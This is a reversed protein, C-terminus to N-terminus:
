LVILIISEATLHSKVIGNHVEIFNSLKEYNVQCGNALNIGSDEFNYRWKFCTFDGDTAKFIFSADQKMKSPIGLGGNLSTFEKIVYVGDMIKLTQM